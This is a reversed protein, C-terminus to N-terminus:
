LLALAFGLALLLGFRLHLSAAARVLANLGLAKRAELRRVAAWAWPLALLALLAPWPMLGSAVSVVVIFFVSFTLLWLLYDAAPRDILTYDGDASLVGFSSLLLLVFITSIRSAHARPYM